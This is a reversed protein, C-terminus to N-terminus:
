GALPRAIRQYAQQVRHSRALAELQAPLQQRRAQLSAIAGDVAAALAGLLEAVRNLCDALARGPSQGLRQWEAKATAVRAEVTAVRDLQAVLQPLWGDVPATRHCDCLAVAQTYLDIEERYGECLLQELHATSQTM